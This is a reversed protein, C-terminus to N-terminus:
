GPRAPPPTTPKTAPDWHEVVKGDKIRLTDWWFSEYTKSPDSPEPTNRKFTMQVIDGEATILVPPNVWGSGPKPEKWLKSFFGVFGAKGTPVNPNHQKYDDALVSSAGQVDQHQLAQMMKSALAKNAELQAPTEALATGALVVVAGAAAMSGLITRNKM